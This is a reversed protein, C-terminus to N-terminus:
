TREGGNVAVVAEVLGHRRRGSASSEGGGGGGVGGGDGRGPMPVMRDMFRGQVIVQLRGLPQHGEVRGEQLSGAEVADKRRM